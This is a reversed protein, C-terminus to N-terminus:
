NTKSDAKSLDPSYMRQLKILTDRLESATPRQAPNLLTCVSILQALLPYSAVLEDSIPPRLKKQQHLSWLAEKTMNGWPVEGTFLQLRLRVGHQSVCM